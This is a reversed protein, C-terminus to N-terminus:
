NITTDLITAQKEIFDIINEIQIGETKQTEEEM